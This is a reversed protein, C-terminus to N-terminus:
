VRMFMELTIPYIKLIKFEKPQKLQEGFILVIKKCAQSQDVWNSEFLRYSLRNKSATIENGFYMVLFIELTNYLVLFALVIREM